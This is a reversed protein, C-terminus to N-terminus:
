EGGEGAARSPQRQRAALRDARRRRMREERERRARRRQQHEAEDASVRGVVLSAAVAAIGAVVLLALTAPADHLLVGGFGAETGGGRWASGIAIVTGDLVVLALAATAVAVGLNRLSAWRSGAGRAEGAAGRAAWLAVSGWTALLLVAELLGLLYEGAAVGLFLGASVAVAATAALAMRPRRLGVAAACSAVVLAACVYFAPASM